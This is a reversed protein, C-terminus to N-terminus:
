AVPAVERLFQLLLQTVASPQEQQVWHGAGSVVHVGRCDALMEDATVYDDVGPTMYRAPDLEAGIFLAPQAIKADIFDHLAHWDLDMCRYRNLGGRFGSANFNEVCYDEEIQPFWAPMTTPAPIDSLADAKGDEKFMRFAASGAEGSLSFYLKRLGTRIDRQFEREAVGERQFYLQYFYRDGILSRMVEITPAATPRRYQGALSAIARVKEPYLFAAAHVIGAGWDHGFLVAKGGGLRDIIGAADAAQHQLQYADVPHPKSSGGYGRVDMAVARYGADAIPQLQHRWSSWLEPFGPIMLVLPGSGRMVVRIAVGNTEIVKTECGASIADHLTSM